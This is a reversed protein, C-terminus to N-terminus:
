PQSRFPIGSAYLNVLLKKADAQEIMKVVAFQSLKDSLSPGLIIRNVLNDLTLGGNGINTTDVFPIRLKPRPGNPGILYTLLHKFKGELDREGM